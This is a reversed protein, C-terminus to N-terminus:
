EVKGSEFFRNKKKCKEFTYTTYKSSDSPVEYPAPM